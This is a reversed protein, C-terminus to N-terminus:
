FVDDRRGSAFEGVRSELEAPTVLEAASLVREFAAFWRTYYSSDVGAREAAAIEAILQDRFQNWHFRGDENLAVTM